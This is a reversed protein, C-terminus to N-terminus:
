RKIRGCHICVGKPFLFFECCECDADEIIEECYTCCDVWEHFGLWCLLKRIM